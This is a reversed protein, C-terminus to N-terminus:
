HKKGKGSHKYTKGRKANANKYKVKHNDNHVWVDKDPHYVTVRRAGKTLVVGSPLTKSTVWTGNDNFLYQKEAVDFYINTAPYYYFTHRTTTTTVLQASVGSYGLTMLTLLIVTILKKM